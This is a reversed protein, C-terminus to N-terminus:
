EHTEALYSLLCGTFVVVFSASSGLGKAMPIESRITIKIKEHFPKEYYKTLRNIMFKM